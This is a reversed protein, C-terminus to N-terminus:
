LVGKEGQQALFCKYGWEIFQELVVVELWAGMFPGMYGEFFLVDGRGM